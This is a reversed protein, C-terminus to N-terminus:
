SCGARAVEWAPVHGALDENHHDRLCTAEKPKSVEDLTTRDAAWGQFKHIDAGRHKEQCLHVARTTAQYTWAETSYFPRSLRRQIEEASLPVKGAKLVQAVRTRVEAFTLRCACTSRKSWPTGGDYHFLVFGGPESIKRALYRWLDRKAADDRPDHSRWQNARLILRVDDDTTFGDNEFRCLLKELIIKLARWTSESKDETTLVISFRPRM